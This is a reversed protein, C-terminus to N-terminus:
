NIKAWSIINKYSMDSDRLGRQYFSINKKISKVLIRAQMTSQAPTGCDTCANSQFPTRVSHGKPSRRSGRKINRSAQNEPLLVM